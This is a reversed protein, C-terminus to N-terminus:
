RRSPDEDSSPYLADVIQHLAEERALEGNLFRPWIGNEVTAIAGSREYLDTADGYAVHEPDYVRRMTAAAQVFMLTHPVDHFGADSRVLGRELLRARLQDFANDDGKSAIDLAHTSEHLLTELLLGDAEGSGVEVVAVPQDGRLYYTMAGPPNTRTVLFMPVQVHPDAIGLSEMMFALAERHRPVFAAELYNLRAELEVKRSPWLETEFSSIREEIAAALRM